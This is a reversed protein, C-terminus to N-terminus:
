LVLVVLVDFCISVDAAAEGGDAVGAGAGALFKKTLNVTEKGYELASKVASLCVVNLSATALAAPPPPVLSSTVRVIVSTRRRAPFILTSTVMLTAVSSAAFFMAEAIVASLSFSFSLSAPRFSAVITDAGVTALFPSAFGAKFAFARSLVPNAHLQVTHARAHPRFGSLHLPRESIHHDLIAAARTMCLSRKPYIIQRIIRHTMKCKHCPDNHAAPDTDLTKTKHRRASSRM